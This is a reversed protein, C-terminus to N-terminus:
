RTQVKSPNVSGSDPPAYTFSAPFYDLMEPGENFPSYLDTLSRFRIFRAETAVALDPLGTLAVFRKKAELAKEDTSKTVWFWGIQALLVIALLSFGTAFRVIRRGIELGGSTRRYGIKM